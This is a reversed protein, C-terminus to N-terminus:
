GQGGSEFDLKRSWIEVLLFNLLCKPSLTDWVQAYDRGRGAVKKRMTLERIVVQVM